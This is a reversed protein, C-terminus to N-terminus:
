ATEAPLDIIVEMTFHRRVKGDYDSFQGSVSLNKVGFGGATVLTAIKTLAEIDTLEALEKEM